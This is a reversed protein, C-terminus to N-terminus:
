KKIDSGFGGVKDKKSLEERKKQYQDYSEKEPCRVAPDKRCQNQQYEQNMEYFFREFSFSDGACGSLLLALVLFLPQRLKM